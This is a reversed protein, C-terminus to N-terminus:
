TKVANSCGADDDDDDDDDGSTLVGLCSCKKVGDRFQCQRMEDSCRTRCIAAGILRTRHPLKGVGCRTSAAPSARAHRCHALVQIPNTTLAVCRQRWWLWWRWRWRRAVAGWLRLRREVVRRPLRNVKGVVHDNRLSRTLGVARAPARAPRVEAPVRSPSHTMQPRIPTEPWAAWNHVCACMCMCVCAGMMQSTKSVCKTTLQSAVHVDHHDRSNTLVRQGVQDPESAVAPVALVERNWGVPWGVLRDYREVKLPRKTVRHDVEVAVQNPIV